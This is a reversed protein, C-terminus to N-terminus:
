YRWVAVTSSFTGLLFGLLLAGGIVPAYIFISLPFLPIGVFIPAIQPIILYIVLSCIGSGLFAAVLGYFIGELIFPQRIYGRTGGLLRLIEIEEKRLSIKMSVITFVVLISNITLFTILAIGVIKLANTFSIIVNIVDEPFSVKDVNKEKKLIEALESLYTPDKASVELSDPLINATVMELLLPDNKNLERYIALAEEKSVYKLSAVKRTDNLKNKLRALEDKKIEEKFFAIIQPRTEFYRLIVYSSYFLYAFLSAAFFTLSMIMIAALAQYPSRRIHQWTTKIQM